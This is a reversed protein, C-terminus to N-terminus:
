PQMVGSMVDAAGYPLKLKLPQVASFGQVSYAWLDFVYADGTNLLGPPLTLSTASTQLIAYLTVASGTGSKSLKWLFLQYYAAKGTAPAGWTLKPTLGIGSLNSAFSQGNVTPKTPGSVLLALPQTSTPLTTGFGYVSGFLDTSSTAGPAVYPVNVSWIYGTFL